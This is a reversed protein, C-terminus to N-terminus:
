HPPDRGGRTMDDLGGLIVPEETFAIPEAEKGEARAIEDCHRTMRVCKAACVDIPCLDVERCQQDGLTVGGVWVARQPRVPVEAVCIGLEEVREPGRVGTEETTRM